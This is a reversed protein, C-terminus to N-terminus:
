AADVPSALKRKVYVDYRVAKGAIVHSPTQDALDPSKRPRKVVVRAVDQALAWRLLDVSDDPGQLLLQFLAMDKKVAASKNRDPFMPDLYVVDIQRLDSSTLHRADSPLLSMRGAVAQLWPDASIKARDIGSQLLAVVLPERETMLVSCGLDALVFSDRGLGATADLVRPQLARSVGIARGLLENHGAGRRHRMRPSGFNVSVPGPASPGTLKLSVGERSVQLLADFDDQKAVSADAELLPLGLRHALGEVEAPKDLALVAVRPRDIM